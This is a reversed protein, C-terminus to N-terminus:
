CCCHIRPTRCKGCPRALFPNCALCATEFTGSTLPGGCKGCKPKEPPPGSSPPTEPASPM